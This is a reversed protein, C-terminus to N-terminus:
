NGGKQIQNYINKFSERARTLLSEVAKNSREFVSSIEKVSFGRMYKLTLVKRHDEAMNGLVHDIMHGEAFKEYVEPEVVECM